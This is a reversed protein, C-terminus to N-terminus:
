PKCFTQFLRIYSINKRSTSKEGGFLINYHLLLLLNQILNKEVYVGFTFTSIHHEKQKRRWQTRSVEKSRSTHYTWSVRTLPMYWYYYLSYSHIIFFNSKRTGFFLMLAKVIKVAARNCIYMDLIILASLQWTAMLGFFILWIMNLKPLFFFGFSRLFSHWYWTRLFSLFSSFVKVLRDIESCNTMKFKLM